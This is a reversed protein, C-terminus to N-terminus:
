FIFIKVNRELVNRKYSKEVNNVRRLKRKNKEEESEERNLSRDSRM